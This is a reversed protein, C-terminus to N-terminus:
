YYWVQRNEIVTIKERKQQYDKSERERRSKKRTKQNYSPLTHKEKARRKISAVVL